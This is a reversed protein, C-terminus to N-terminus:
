PRLVQANRVIYMLHDPDTANLELRGKITILKQTLQVTQTTYVEAVTEPGAGGCFYCLNFPLASLVFYQHGLMTELPVMYGSLVVEQGDLKKVPGLFTPVSMPLGGTPDPVTSIRVNELIRWNQRGLRELDPNQALAVGPLLCCALLLARVLPTTLLPM